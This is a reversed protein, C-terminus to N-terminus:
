GMTYSEVPLNIVTSKVKTMMHISNTVGQTGIGSDRLGQMWHWSLFILGGCSVQLHKRVLGFSKKFAEVFDKWSLNSILHCVQFPFHDPGRAPAANIQITGSEMANSILIAKNIDKTFV